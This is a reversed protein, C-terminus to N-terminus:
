GTSSHLLRISSDAEWYRRWTRGLDESRYLTPGVSAWAIGSADFTVHYTDINSPTSDPFEGGAPQWSQGANESFWLRGHVNEGHPGDSVTALLVDPRHPHVAIERGYAHGLGAGRDQWSRGQDDSVYVARATNAYVRRPASPCAAVRHVDEHLTPTVPEWTDGADLSRMISGVHIDAYVTQGDPSALSRV